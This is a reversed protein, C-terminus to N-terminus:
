SDRVTLLVLVFSSVAVTLRKIMIGEAPVQAPVLCWRPEGAHSDAAM